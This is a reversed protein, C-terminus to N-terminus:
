RYLAILLGLLTDIFVVRGADAPKKLYLLAAAALYLLGHVIRYPAWWTVGGGEPANLRSNSAYLSLFGLGIVLFATQLWPSFLNKSAAYALGLRAPICGLIFLPKM